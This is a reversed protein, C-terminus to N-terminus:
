PNLRESMSMLQLKSGKIQMSKFAVNAIGDCDCVLDELVLM